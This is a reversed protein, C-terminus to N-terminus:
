FSLLVLQLQVLFLHKCRSTVLERLWKREWQEMSTDPLHVAVHTVLVLHCARLLRQSEMPARPGALTKM